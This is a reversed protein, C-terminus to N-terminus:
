LHRKRWWEDTLFELPINKKNKGAPDEINYDGELIDFWNDRLPHPLRYSCNPCFTMLSISTSGIDQISYERWKSNYGVPCYPNDIQYQLAACCNTFFQM